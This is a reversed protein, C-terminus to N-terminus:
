DMAPMTYILINQINFYLDVMLKFFEKHVATFHDGFFNKKESFAFNLIIHKPSFLKNALIPM